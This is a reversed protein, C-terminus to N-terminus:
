LTNSAILKKEIYDKLIKDINKAGNTSNLSKILANMQTDSIIINSNYDNNLKKLQIEMINKLNEKNLKNLKIKYNIKDTIYKPINNNESTNSNVYGITSKSILNTTFFIISNKFSITENKSNRIFGDELIKSILDLVSIHAKDIEDILIISNPNLKLSEFITNNDNYGIYGQPSGIIKNISIESNFENMNLKILNRNLLNSLETVLTTKGTGDYGELLFSIPLNNKKNKLLNLKDVITNICEEQGIIKKKLEKKLYDYLSKSELDYINSNCKSEIIKIITELSVRNQNFKINMKLIEQEKEKYKLASKFDSKRISNEKMFHIKTLENNLLKNAYNNSLISTYACAEDLIDISKDPNNRDFIYKNSLEIINKLLKNSIKVNHFKEYENKIKKLIHYTEISNPEKICVKQFRRDLAKDETIFKKYENITTAGIIKLTGRALIPKLINSADIAGEAGGAGVITHIEDIFIILDDNAECENLIKTLKEEFEGRYKTGSIISAINISLIKKNKLFDPVNNNVIMNALEEVIATKGVGAEGILIPNNKNKRALIGIVENIEKKRGIARSLKKSKALNTLDTGIDLLLGTSKNTLSKVLDKYFDELNEDLDKLLQVDINENIITIFIHEIFIENSSYRNATDYSLDLIKKLNISYFILKSSDSKKSINLKEKYSNYTINYKNLLKKVNNNLKLTALILHNIDVLKSNSEFMEEESKKLICIVDKNYKIM